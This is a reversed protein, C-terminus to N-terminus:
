SDLTVKKLFHSLQAFHNLKKFPYDFINEQLHSIELLYCVDLACLNKVVPYTFDKNYGTPQIVFCPKQLAVVDSVMTESDATVFCYSTHFIYPFIDVKNKHFLILEYNLDPYRHKMTVEILSAYKLDTRRSTIICLKKQKKISFDVLNDIIQIYEGSNWHYNKKDNGGIFFTIYDNSSVNDQNKIFKVYKDTIFFPIHYINEGTFRSDQTTTLLGDIQSLPIYKPKGLHFYKGKYLHKLLFASWEGRSNFSIFIPNKNLVTKYTLFNNPDVIFIKYIKQFLFPLKYLFNVIKNFIKSRVRIPICSIHAQNEFCLINILEALGFAKNVEGLYNQQEIDSVCIFIDQTM